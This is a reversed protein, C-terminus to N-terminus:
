SDTPDVPIVVENRRFFPLTWPPDYSYVTAPGSPRWRTGELHQLLERNKTAITEERAFGNFRSVAFMQEPVEILRVRPDLPTPATTEDFENPLFFRMQVQGGAARTTEVPATMAIEQAEGSTEVPATMTIETQTRNEGSIYDFLLRFAASQGEEYEVAEVTAEAALRPAYRRIEIQDAVPEVVEYTPQEYGSRVGFVSCGATAISMAIVILVQKM